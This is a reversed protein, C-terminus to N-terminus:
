FAFPFRVHIFGSAQLQALFSTVADDHSQPLARAALTLALFALCPSVARWAQAIGAERAFGCLPRVRGVFDDESLDLGAVADSLMYREGGGDAATLLVGLKGARRQLQLAFPRQTGTSDDHLRVEM